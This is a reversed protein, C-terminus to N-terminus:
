SQPKQRYINVDNNAKITIKVRTSTSPQAHITILQNNHEIQLLEDKKLTLTLSTRRIQSDM